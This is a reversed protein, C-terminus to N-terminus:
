RLIIKFDTQNFLSIFFFFFVLCFVVCFLFLVFGFLCAVSHDTVM